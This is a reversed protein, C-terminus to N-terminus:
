KLIGQGIRGIRRGLNGEVVQPQHILLLAILFRGQFLIPFRHPQLGVVANGIQPHPLDKFLLAPGILCPVSVAPSNFTSGVQDLCVIAIPHHAVSGPFQLISQVGQVPDDLQSGIGGHRVIGPPIKLAQM